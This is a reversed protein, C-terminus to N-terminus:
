TTAQQRNARGRDQKDRLRKAARQKPATAGLREVAVAVLDPWRYVPSGDAHRWPWPELGAETVVQALRDPDLRLLEAARPLTSVLPEAAMDLALRKSAGAPPPPAWPHGPGPMRVVEFVLKGGITAPSIM